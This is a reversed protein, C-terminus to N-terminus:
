PTFKEGLKSLTMTSRTQFHALFTYLSEMERVVSTLSSMVVFRKTHRFFIKHQLHYRPIIEFGGCRIFPQSLGASDAGPHISEFSEQRGVERLLIFLERCRYSIALSLCLRKSQRQLWTNGRM